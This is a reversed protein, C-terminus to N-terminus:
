RGLRSWGQGLAAATQDARATVTTVLAAHSSKLEAIVADKAAVQAHHALELKALKAAHEAAMERARDDCVRAINTLAEAHKEGRAREAALDKELQEIRAEQILNSNAPRKPINNPDDHASAAGGATADAQL